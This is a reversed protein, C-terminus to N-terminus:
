YHRSRGRRWDTRYERTDVSVIAFSDMAIVPEFPSWEARPPVDSTLNGLLLRRTRIGDGAGNGGKARVIAAPIHVM